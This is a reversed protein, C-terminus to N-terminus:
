KGLVLFCFPDNFEVKKIAFSFCVSNVGVSGKVEEKTSVICDLILYTLLFKVAVWFLFYSNFVVFPRDRSLYVFYAIHSTYLIYMYSTVASVLFVVMISLQFQHMYGHLKCLKRLTSHIKLLVEVTCHFQNVVANGQALKTLKIMQYNVRRYHERILKLIALFFCVDIWVILRSSYHIMLISRAKVPEYLWLYVFEFIFCCCIILFATFFPLFWSVRSYRPYVGIKSWVNEIKLLKEVIEVNLDRKLWSVFLACVAATTESGFFVSVSVVKLIETKTFVRSFVLDIFNVGFQLVIYIMLVFPYIRLLTDAGTPKLSYGRLGVMETIRLLPSLIFRVSEYQHM